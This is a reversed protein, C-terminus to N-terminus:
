PSLTDCNMVPQFISDDESGNSSLARHATHSALIGDPRFHGSAQNRGRSM